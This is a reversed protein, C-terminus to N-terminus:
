RQKLYLNYIIVAAQARTAHTLPSFTNNGVGNIGETAYLEYVAEKAYDAIESDDSFVTKERKEEVADLARRCLLAMDQRTLLSGTGFERENIGKVLGKNVASAIYRYHWDSVKTDWFGCEASSDYSNTALVLMKIFEERKVTDNPRFNGNEDGSIIGQKVMANVATEAWTASHMDSFSTKTDSSKVESPIAATIGSAKPTNGGGGGGGGGGGNSSSTGKYYNDVVSGIISTLERVNKAPNLTLASVINKNINGMNTATTYKKYNGDSEIGLDDAYEALVSQIYNVRSNNIKYLINADKYTKSFEDNSQYKGAKVSDCIWKKLKEDEIESFSTGEYELNAIQLLQEANESSTILDSVVSLNLVKAIEEPKANAFSNIGEITKNAVSIKNCGGYIGMDFGFIDLAYVYEANDLIRILDDGSTVNNLETKAKNRSEVSAYVFSDTKFTEGNQKIYSDYKGDSLVGDLMEPMGFEWVAKGTDDPTVTRITILKDTDLKEGSKVVMLVATKEKQVIETFEVYQQGDKVAVQAANVTGGVCVIASLWLAIKRKM